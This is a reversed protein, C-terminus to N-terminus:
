CRLVSVLEATHDNEDGSGSQKIQLWGTTKSWTVLFRRARPVLIHYPWYSVCAYLRIMRATAVM